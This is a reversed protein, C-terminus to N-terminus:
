QIYKMWHFRINQLHAYAAGVVAEVETKKKWYDEELIKNDPLIVTDVCSSMALSALLISFIKKM